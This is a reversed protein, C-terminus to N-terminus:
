TLCSSDGASLHASNTTRSHVVLSRTFTSPVGCCSREDVLQQLCYAASTTAAPQWQRQQQYTMFHFNHAQVEM